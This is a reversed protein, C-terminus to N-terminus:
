NFQSLAPKGGVMKKIKVYELYKCMSSHERTWGWLAAFGVGVLPAVVAWIQLWPLSNIELWVTMAQSVEDAM